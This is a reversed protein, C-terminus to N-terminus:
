HISTGNPPLGAPSIVVKDGQDSQHLSAVCVRIRSRMALALFSNTTVRRSAPDHTVGTAGPLGPEPSSLRFLSGSTRAAEPSIRRSAFLTLPQRLHATPTIGGRFGQGLSLSLRGAERGKALATDIIMTAQALTVNSM